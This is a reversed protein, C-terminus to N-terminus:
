LLSAGALMAITISITLWAAFAWPGVDKLSNM